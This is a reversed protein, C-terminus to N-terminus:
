ANLPVCNLAAVIMVTFVVAAEGVATVPKLPVAALLETVRLQVFFM